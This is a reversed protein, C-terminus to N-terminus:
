DLEVGKFLDPRNRHLWEAMDLATVFKFERGNSVFVFPREQVQPM